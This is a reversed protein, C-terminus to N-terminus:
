GLLVDVGIEFAPLIPAASCIDNEICIKVDRRSTYVHVSKNEPFILWVVKSQISGQREKFYESIKDYIHNVQDNKSIIIIMFTPVPEVEDCQAIDEASFFMLDSKRIQSDSAKDMEQLLEGGIRHADTKLFLRNLIHILKLHQRNM